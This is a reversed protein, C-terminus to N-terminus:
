QKRFCDQPKTARKSNCWEFEEGLTVCEPCPVYHFEPTQRYASSWCTPAKTGFMTQVRDMGMATVRNLFYPSPWPIGSEAPSKVAVISEFGLIITLTDECGPLKSTPDCYTYRLQAGEADRTDGGPEVPGMFWPQKIDEIWIGQWDDEVTTKNLDGVLLKCLIEDPPLPRRKFDILDDASFFQSADGARVWVGGDGPRVEAAQLSTPDCSGSDDAAMSLLALSLITFTRRTNM